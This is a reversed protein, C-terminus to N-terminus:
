TFSRSIKLRPKLHARLRIVLTGRLLSSSVSAGLSPPRTFTFTSTPMICGQAPSSWPPQCGRSAPLPARPLSPAEPLAVRGVGEDRVKPRWFHLVSIIQKFALKCYDTVSAGPCWHTDPRSPTQFPKDGLGLHTPFSCPGRRPVTHALPGWCGKCVHTGCVGVGFRTWVGNTRTFVLRGPGAPSAPVEEQLGAM